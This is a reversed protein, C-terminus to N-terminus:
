RPILLRDRETLPVFQSDIILGIADGNQILATANHISYRDRLPDYRRILDGENIPFFGLSSKIGIRNADPDDDKRIRSPRTKVHESWAVLRSIELRKHSGLIFSGLIRSKALNFRGICFNVWYPCREWDEPHPSFWIHVNYVGTVRLTIWLIIGKIAQAVKNFTRM